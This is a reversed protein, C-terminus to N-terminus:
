YKATRSLSASRVKITRRFHRSQVDDNSSEAIVGLDKFKKVSSPTLKRTLPEHKQRATSYHMQQYCILNKEMFWRDLAPLDMQIELQATNMALIKIDRAFIFAERFKLAEPLNNIFMCFLLPGLISGQPPYSTVNMKTSNGNGVRVVQSQHELYDSPIELM